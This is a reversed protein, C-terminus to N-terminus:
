VWKRNVEREDKKKKNAKKVADRKKSFPSLKTGQKYLEKAREIHNVALRERNNNVLDQRFAGLEKGQIDKFKGRARVKDM